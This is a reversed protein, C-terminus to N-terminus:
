PNFDTLGYNNWLLGYGKSSIYMPLSIQTNVQTLRRSLGCVNTYGDQFQGLGYMFEGEDTKVGLSARSIDQDYLRGKVLDHSDACFVVRGSRDSIRVSRDAPNVTLTYGVTRITATGDSNYSSKHKIPKSDTYILNPLNFEQGEEYRIRVASESLPIVHIDGDGFPIKEQALLSSSLLVSLLLGPLFKRSM